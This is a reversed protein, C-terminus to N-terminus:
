KQTVQRFLVDSVKDDAATLMQEVLLVVAGVADGWLLVLVIGAIGAGLLFTDAVTQGIAGSAVAAGIYLVFILAM